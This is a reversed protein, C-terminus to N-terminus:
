ICVYIYIYVGQKRHPIGMPLGKVYPREIHTPWADIHM